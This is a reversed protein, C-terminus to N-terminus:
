YADGDAVPEDRYASTDRIPGFDGDHAERQETKPRIFVAELRVAFAIGFADGVPRVTGASKAQSPIAGAVLLAVVYNALQVRGAARDNAACYAHRFQGGMMPRILYGLGQLKRQECILPITLGPLRTRWM